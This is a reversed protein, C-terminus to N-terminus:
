FEFGLGFAFSSRSAINYEGFINLVALKLELGITWQVYGEDMSIDIEEAEGAAESEYKIDVTYSNYYLGTYPTLVPPFTKSAQVGISYTTTKTLDSGSQNEGLKFQQWFFSASLDLPPVPGMYQSISHRVGFGALMIDGLETDGFKAAFFRIMAETGMVAGVRIQPAVIAFSGLDFGAPFAFSTGGDGDVIVAGTPGVVTPADVTQEPTFGAETTARFTRDDDTFYTAVIPFEIAIRFGAKPIYASRYLGSSLSTGVASVLPDLYGEANKGTYASLHDEIQASLPTAVLLVLVASWIGRRLVSSFDM